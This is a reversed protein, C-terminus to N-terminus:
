VRPGGKKWTLFRACLALQQGVHAASSPRLQSQFGPRLDGILDQVRMDPWLAQLLCLLATTKVPPRTGSHAKLVERVM